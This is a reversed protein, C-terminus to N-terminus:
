MATERFFLAIDQLEVRFHANQPPIGKNKCYGNWGSATLRVYQVKLYFGNDEPHWTKAKRWVGECSLNIVSCNIYKDCFLSYVPTVSIVYKVKFYIIQFDTEFIRCIARSLYHRPSDQRNKTQLSFYFSFYFKKQREILGTKFRWPFLLEWILWSYHMHADVLKAGEWLAHVKHSSCSILRRGAQLCNAIRSKSHKRWDRTRQAESEM